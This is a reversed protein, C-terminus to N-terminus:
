NSLMGPMLQMPLGMQRVEQEGFSWRRPSVETFTYSSWNLNDNQDIWPAIWVRMVQSPERVPKVMEGSEAFLRSPELKTLDLAREMMAKKKMEAQEKAKEKGESDNPTVRWEDPTRGVNVSDPAAHTQGYVELPTKCDDGKCAFSDEGTNLLSCGGMAGSFAAVILARLVTNM